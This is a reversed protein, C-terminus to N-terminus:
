NDSNAKEVGNTLRNLKRKRYFTVILSIARFMSVVLYAAFILGLVFILEFTNNLYRPQHFLLKESLSTGKKNYRIFDNIDRASWKSYVVGGKLLVLGPNSRVMTKLAIEDSLCFPIDLKNEFAFREQERLPSATLIYIPYHQAKAYEQLAYVADLFRGDAEELYPMSLLFVYSTDTLVKMTIDGEQPHIIVFDQIPPQYGKRVQIEKRDVYHWATDTPYEDEYFRKRHGDKEMIFQVVFSDQPADAPRIMQSPLDAGVKYPRFDIFPLHRYSYSAIFLPVIMSLIFTAPATRKGFTHYLKGKYSLLMLSLLLLIVNKEFTQWNSLTVADGFCGCDSVPNTLAIVLTFSTLVAVFLTTVRATLRQRFGFLHSFGLLMEFGFLLVSLAMAYEEFFLWGFAQLYDQIKYVTGLPDVAKVFGSFLFTLGLIFRALVAM